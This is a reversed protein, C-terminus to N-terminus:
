TSPVKCKQNHCTNQKHWRIIKPGTSSSIHYSRRPALIRSYQVQAATITTQLSSNIFCCCCCCDGLRILDSTKGTTFILQIILQTSSRVSPSVCYSKSRYGPHTWKSVRRSCLKGRKHNQPKGYVLHSM